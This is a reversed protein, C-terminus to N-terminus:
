GNGDSVGFGALVGALKEMPLGVINTFSGKYKEVLLGDQI